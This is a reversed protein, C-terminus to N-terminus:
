EEVELERGMRYKIDYNIIFDLEEDTFGYHQALVCDIEDIIPKSEKVDFNTEDTSIINGRRQRVESNKSYAKLIEWQFQEFREVSVMDFDFVPMEDVERSVVDMCNSNTIWYWYFLQSNLLCFVTPAFRRDVVIEKYHSSLKEFLSKRWYRGGSHYYIPKGRVTYFEKLKKNYIHLKELIQSEIDKGLKPFLNAHTRPVTLKLYELRQFLSNRDSEPGNRWRYYITSFVDPEDKLTDVVGITITLNMDVGVFLKGPRTAFHSHWQQKAQKRYLTQLEKMGETSVSAIPVIMGYRGYKRTLNFGREMMFAYLNGCRETKFGRVKYETRVKTYSVYPPNGIIVDFGGQKMIAYFEIFWHFPKHSSLWKAYAEKKNLDVGYENALYRNLEEELIKLRKRLEEKDEPAVEGGLATQQQRFLAFLRDIDEAKEEIKKMANDFDLKSTVAKHVEDYTAYGVLTNGARINFDIDPLAEIKQGPEVQAVLKLFLRLKCIEVAEELIDVGFLNNIIISKYIFYRANPHQQMRQLTESFFKYYNPHKKKGEDGWENIFAEMRQLCAEYLPELINLAAFLFAGSGCTPDLVTVENIAKWFANILDPGECNDIVDQAFQTINLNYTILDNIDHVEGAKLKERLELCRKRREVYERWTETPLTLKTGREDYLQAEGLNYRKDFMRAKPDHMGKQVFDPLKSEPLISGDDLIVGRRVAEYIYRDPDSQLLKWVSHEGEFAIRCEKRAVDFLYPIITNKSIYGTIDEKTYYAGLEKQNIYKEFIYGLVDPNIENGKAIPRDDLHWEWQDFFAFLRDFAKDPIHIQKGHRREIEHELFLGGNLYPVKGLLENVKRTREEEKRAFGEFFLPCLFGKYFQDKGRRKSEQLKTKLYNVDSNLFGKKQIFYIFMLRNIMVSAYWRELNEDPIGEIFKLFSNHEKKFLDYFKKTVRDKDFAVKLRFAADTVTLEEEEDLPFIIARLKQIIIDGSQGRHIPYERYATPKGSERAVWQWIQQTKASDTFIVLHEFASKTVQRDIKKRTSYDPMIGGDSPPCEFIQVGRKQAIARLTYTRGDITVDLTGDHRDWGLEEIFLQKFNGQTLLTRIREINM